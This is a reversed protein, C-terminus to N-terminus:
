NFNKFPFFVYNHVNNFNKLFYFRLGQWKSLNDILYRIDFIIDQIINQILYPLYFAYQWITM